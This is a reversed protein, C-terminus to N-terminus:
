PLRETNSVRLGGCLILPNGLDYINKKTIKALAMDEWFEVFNKIDKNNPAGRLDFQLFDFDADEIIEYYQPFDSHGDCSETIECDNDFVLDYTVGAAYDFTKHVQDDVMLKANGGTNLEIQAGVIEGVQGVPIGYPPFPYPYQRLTLFFTRESQQATSFVADDLYMIVGREDWDGKPQIREHLNAADVFLDFNQLSLDGQAVAKETILRLTRKPNALSVPESEKGGTQKWSFYIRHEKEDFPFIVRWRDKGDADTKHYCLALGKFIIKIISM